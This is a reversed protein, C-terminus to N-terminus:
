LIVACLEDMLDPPAILTSAIYPSPLDDTIKWGYSNIGLAPPHKQDASKWLMVQLHARLIHFCM